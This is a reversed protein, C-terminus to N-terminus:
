CVHCVPRVEQLMDALKRVDEESLTGLGPPVVTSSSVQLDINHTEFFIDVSSEPAAQKDQLANTRLATIYQCPISLVQVIASTYPRRRLVRMNM